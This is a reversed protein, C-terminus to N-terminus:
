FIDPFPGMLLWMMSAVTAVCGVLGGLGLWMALHTLPRGEPDRGGLYMEGLDMYGLVLAPGAAFVGCLPLLWGTNYVDLLSSAGCAAGALGIVALVLLFQGRSPASVEYHPRFPLESGAPTAAYLGSATTAGSAQQSDQKGASEEVASAEVEELEAFRNQGAADIPTPKSFRPDGPKLLPNSM